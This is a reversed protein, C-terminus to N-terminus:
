KLTTLELVTSNRPLKRSREGAMFEQEVCIFKEGRKEFAQIVFGPTIKNYKEIM